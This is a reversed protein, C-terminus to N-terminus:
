TAMFPWIRSPRTTSKVEFEILVSKNQFSNYGARVLNERCPVPIGLGIYRRYNSATPDVEWLMEGIEIDPRPSTNQAKIRCKVVFSSAKVNELGLERVDVTQELGVAMKGDGASFTAVGRVIIFSYEFDIACPLSYVSAGSGIYGEFRPLYLHFVYSTESSPNRIKDIVRQSQGVTLTQLEDLALKISSIDPPGAQGQGQEGQEAAAAGAIQRQPQNIQIDKVVQKSIQEASLIDALMHVMTETVEEKNESLMNKVADKTEAHLNKSSTDIEVEMLICLAKVSALTEEKTKKLEDQLESKSVAVTQQLLQQQEQRRLEQRYQRHEEQLAKVQEKFWLLDVSLDSAQTQDQDTTTEASDSTTVAQRTTTKPEMDSIQHFRTAGYNQLDQQAATATQQTSSLRHGDEGPCRASEADHSSAEYGHQEPIQTKSARSLELQEDTGSRIASLQNMIENEMTALHTRISVREQELEKVVSAKFEEMTTKLPQLAGVIFERLRDELAGLETKSRTGEEM